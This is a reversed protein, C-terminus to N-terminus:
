LGFETEAVPWDAPEVPEVRYTDFIQTTSDVVRRWADEILIEVVVATGGGIVDLVRLVDDGYRDPVRVYPGVNKIMTM